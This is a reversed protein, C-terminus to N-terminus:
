FRLRTLIDSIFYDFILIAMSTLVVASTTSKGVGEAGGSTRFGVACSIISICMGFIMAKFLGGNISAIDLFLLVSEIFTNVTQGLIYHCVIGGGIIGVFDALLTLMPLTIMGALFRPVTIYQVPNTSLTILADVQETVKMTGVEAAIASGIRGAVILATLVPGMERALSVAVIGGMYQSAGKLKMDLYFGTQLALIMGAAMATVLTVPISNVGIRVMQNFLNRWSFPPKFMWKVTEIFHISISGIIGFFNNIKRGILQTAKIIM